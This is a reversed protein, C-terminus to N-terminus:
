RHIIKYFVRMIEQKFDVVPTLNSNMKGQRRGESNWETEGHRFLFIIPASM